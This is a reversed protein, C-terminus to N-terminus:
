GRRETLFVLLCLLSLFSLNKLLKLRLTFSIIPTTPTLKVRRVAASNNGKANLGKKFENSFLAGAEFCHSGAAIASAIAQIDHFSTFDSAKFTILTKQTGHEINVIM